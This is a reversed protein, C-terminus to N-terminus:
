FHLSNAESQLLSLEERKVNLQKLSIEEIQESLKDQSSEEALSHALDTKPEKDSEVRKTM